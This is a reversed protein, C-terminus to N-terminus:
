PIRDREVIFSLKANTDLLKADPMRGLGRFPHFHSPYNM